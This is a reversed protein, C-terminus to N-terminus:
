VHGLSFNQVDIRLAEAPDANEADPFHSAKVTMDQYFFSERVMRGDGELVRSLGEPRGNLHQTDFVHRESSRGTHQVVALIRISFFDM